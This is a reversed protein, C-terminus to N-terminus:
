AIIDKGKNAKRALVFLLDSLRNLYPIYTKLPSKTCSREARRCVTRAVHLISSVKTGGPLIFNDLPELSNSTEDIILELKKPKLSKGASLAFLDRQISRLIKILKKDHSFSIAFGIFSNLEDINGYVEIKPSQKSVRKKNLLSTMGDDGKKTYIKM